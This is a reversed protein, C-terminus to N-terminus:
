VLSATTAEKSIKKVLGQLVAGPGVEIFHTFGDATLNEITRTWRVSSTLQKKLNAKIAAPDQNPEGSVNQYIPVTPRHLQAKDIGDNLAGQAIAMLPSHFAGGVSLPVVRKAGAAKLLETAAEIGAYSGSIVVQGPSNFNAAVVIENEVKAITQEVLADDLGLVAAMTSPKAQCAAQMSNARISVLHLGEEFSLAGAAVLASFEGLSHGAVAEFSPVAANQFIIISYLFIAPQTVETAKLDEDTGNQMIHAIDFGLIQNAQHLTQEAKPYLEILKKGMGAFQSGQGSFVLATKM